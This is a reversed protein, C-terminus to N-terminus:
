HAHSQREGTELYNLAKQYSRNELFHMLQGDVKGRAELKLEDLHKIGMLIGESDGDSTAKSLKKLSTYIADKIM